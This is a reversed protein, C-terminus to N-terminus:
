TAAPATSGYFTWNYAQWNAVIMTAEFSLSWLGRQYYDPSLNQTFMPVFNDYSSSVTFSQINTVTNRERTFGSAWSSYACHDARILSSARFIGPYMECLPKM